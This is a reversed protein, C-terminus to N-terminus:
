NKLHHLYLATLAGQAPFSTTTPPAHGGLYALPAPCLLPPGPHPLFGGPYSLMDPPSPPQTPTNVDCGPNQKKWKTRRNQFWIKVQTETLNLALALNLRECVSLYRTHKFKNELAVLQEYTFATRARRPKGSGSDCRRKKPAGGGEKGGEDEDCADEGGEDSGGGGVSLESDSDCIASAAAHLQSDDISSTVESSTVQVRGVFKNPDLIDVVSFPTHRAGHPKCSHTNTDRHLGPPEEGPPSQQSETTAAPSLASAEAASSSSSTTSTTESDHTSRASAASSCTASNNTSACHRLSNATLKSVVPYSLDMPSTTTPPLPVLTSNQARPLVSDPSISRSDM